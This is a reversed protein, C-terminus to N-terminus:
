ECYMYRRLSQNYQKHPFSSISWKVISYRCPNISKDFMKVRKVWYGKAMGERDAMSDFFCWPAKGANNDEGCKVFTVYHSRKICVVAFLEMTELRAALLPSAAQAQSVEERRHDRCHSSRSYSCRHCLYYFVDTKSCDHCRTKVEVSACRSCM